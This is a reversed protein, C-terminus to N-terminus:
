ALMRTLLSDYVSHRLIRESITFQRIMRIQVGVSNVLKYQRQTLRVSLGGNPDTPRRQSVFPAAPPMLIIETDFMVAIDLRASQQDIPVDWEPGRFNHRLLPSPVM